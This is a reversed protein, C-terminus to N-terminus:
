AVHRPRKLYLVGKRTAQFSLDRTRTGTFRAPRERNCPGRYPKVLGYSSLREFVRRMDRVSIKIQLYQSIIDRTVLAGLIQDDCACLALDEIETLVFPREVM